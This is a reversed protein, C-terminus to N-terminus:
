LGGRLSVLYAVMDDLEASTLIDRYSPMPTKGRERILERLESKWFSHLRGSIDRVQLSFTDENVRIGTIDRGDSAVVRVQLFGDPLRSAPDLLVARLHAPGRRAGIETLDPGLTGGQGAVAHCQVCNGKSRFLAAGRTPDGPIREPAIRGLSRVFVILQRIEGDTLHHGDPMETGAIGSRIIKYLAEDDPARPLSPQALNTGRGGDGTPGHCLACRGLYLRRGNGLDGPAATQAEAPAAALLCLVLIACLDKM